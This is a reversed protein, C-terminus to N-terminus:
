QRQYETPLVLPWLVAPRVIETSPKQKTIPLRDPTNGVM